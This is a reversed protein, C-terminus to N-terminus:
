SRFKGTRECVDIWAQAAGRSNFFTRAVQGRWMAQWAGARIIFTTTM